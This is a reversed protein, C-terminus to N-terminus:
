HRRIKTPDIETISEFTFEEYPELLGSLITEKVEEQSEADVHFVQYEKERPEFYSVVVEYIAM